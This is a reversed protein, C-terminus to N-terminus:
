VTSITLDQKERGVFVIHLGWNQFSHRNSVTWSNQTHGIKAWGFDQEGLKEKTFKGKGRERKGKGKVEMNKKKPKQKLVFGIFLCFFSETRRRSFFHIFSDGDGNHVKGKRIYTREKKM